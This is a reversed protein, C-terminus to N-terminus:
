CAWLKQDALPVKCATEFVSVEGYRFNRVRLVMADEKRNKRRKAANMALALGTYAAMLTDQQRQPPHTEGTDPRPVRLTVLAPAVHLEMERVIALIDAPLEQV